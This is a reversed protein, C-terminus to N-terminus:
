VQMAYFYSETQSIDNNESLFNMEFIIREHITRLLSYKTRPM